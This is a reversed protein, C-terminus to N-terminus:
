CAKNDLNTLFKFVIHSGQLIHKWCFKEQIDYGHETRTFCGHSAVVAGPSSPHTNGVHVAAPMRAVFISFGICQLVRRLWHDSGITTKKLSCFLFIFMVFCQCTFFINMVNWFWSIGLTILNCTIIGNYNAGEFGVAGFYKISCLHWDYILFDRIMLPLTTQITMTATCVCPWPWGAQWWTLRMM